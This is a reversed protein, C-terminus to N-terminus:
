PCLFTFGHKSKRPVVSYHSNILFGDLILMACLDRLIKM